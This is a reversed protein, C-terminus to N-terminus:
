VEWQIDRSNFVPGEKCARVYGPEGHVKVACGMCAGVGCAMVQEVSVYCDTNYEEALRHCAHLMPYPGCSFLVSEALQEGSTAELYETVTGNFGVSGDDSCIMISSDGTIVDPLYEKSRCGFIMCADTESAVAQSYLFLIPGIGIGGAVLIMKKRPEPVFSKGLPAIVDLSDSEALASLLRTAPGRVQYM